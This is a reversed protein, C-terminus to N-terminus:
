WRSAKRLLKLRQCSIWFKAGDVMTHRWHSMQISWFSNTLDLNYNEVKSFSLADSSANYIFVYIKYYESRNNYNRRRWTLFIILLLTFIIAKIVTVKMVFVKHSTFVAFTSNLNSDVEFKCIDFKTFHFPFCFGFLMEYWGQKQARLERFLISLIM